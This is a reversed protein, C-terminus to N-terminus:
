RSCGDEVLPTNIYEQLMRYFIFFFKGQHYGESIYARYSARCDIIVYIEQASSIRLGVLNRERPDISNASGTM